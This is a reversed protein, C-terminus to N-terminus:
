SSVDQPLTVTVGELLYQMPMPQPKYTPRCTTGLTSRSAM